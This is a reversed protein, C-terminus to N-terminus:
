RLQRGWLGLEAFLRGWGSIYLPEQGWKGHPNGGSHPLANGNTSSGSHASSLWRIKKKGGVLHEDTEIEVGEIGHIQAKTTVKLGMWTSLKRGPYDYFGWTLKEGLKPVIMWGMLEEWKVEFPSQDLKTIKYTPLDDPM